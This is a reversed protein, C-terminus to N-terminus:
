YDDLLRVGGGGATGGAGAGDGCCPFFSRLRELLRNPWAVDAGSMAAVDSALGDGAGPPVAADAGVSGLSTM